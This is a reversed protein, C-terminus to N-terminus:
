YEQCYDPFSAPLAASYPEPAVGFPHAKMFQWGAAYLDAPAKCHGGGHDCNVVFSGAESMRKDYAASTTAFSVIVKDSAGGHMTMVAPVHDADQLAQQSVQGGSNPVVAAIYSSRVAGMCGAQLGGASCGTTYIRRADIGHDRVACAAIQDAIQFDDKSFTKTGSCDGGTGLSGDFSVIIGGEALIEQRVSAPILLNVESASSGTGHWYFILSGGAKKPGVQLAIGSLGGVTVNGTEFTPCEGEIAPLEPEGQSPAGAMGTSGGSDGPAGGGDDAGASNGGNSNAGAIAGSGSVGVGGSSAGSANAGAVAAGGAPTGARGGAGAGAGSDETPADSSCSVVCLCATVVAVPLASKM